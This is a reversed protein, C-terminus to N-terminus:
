GFYTDPRANYETEPVEEPEISVKCKQDAVVFPTAESLLEQIAEDVSKFWTAGSMQDNRTVKYVTKTPEKKRDSLEHDIKIRLDRLDDETM